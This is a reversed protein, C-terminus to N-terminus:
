QERRALEPVSKAWEITQNIVEDTRHGMFTEVFRLYVLWTDIVDAACYNAVAQRSEEGDAWYESVKSGDIAGKGPYGLLKALPSLQFRTAAGFDTLQDALDYHRLEQKYNGFRHRWTHWFNWSVRHLMAHLGLLPMDFHRGNYTVLRAASDFDQSLATLIEKETTRDTRYCNLKYQETNPDSVLWCVVVPDHYPLPPFQIDGFGKEEEKWRPTISEVDLTITKM